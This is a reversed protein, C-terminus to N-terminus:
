SLRGVLVFLLIGNSLSWLFPVPFAFSASTVILLFRRKTHVPSGITTMREAVAVAATGM